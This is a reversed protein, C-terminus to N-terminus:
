DAGAGLDDAVAADDRGLRERPAAGLAGEVDRIEARGVAVGAQDARGADRQLVGEPQLERDLALGGIGSAGDRPDDSLGAIMGIIPLFQSRNTSLAGCPARVGVEADWCVRM